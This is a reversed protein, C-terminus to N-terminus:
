IAILIFSYFIFIAIALNIPKKINELIKAIILIEDICQFFYTFYIKDKM